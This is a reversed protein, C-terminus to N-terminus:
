EFRGEARREDPGDLVAWKAMGILRSVAPEGFQAALDDEDLNTTIVTPAGRDYRAWILAEFFSRVFPIMRAGRTGVDDLVLVEANSYRRVIDGVGADTLRPDRGRGIADFCVQVLQRWDAFLSEATGYEFGRGSLVWGMSVALGTKGRGTEGALALSRRGTEAVFAAHDAAFLRTLRMAESRAPTTAPWTDFTWDGLVGERPYGRALMREYDIGLWGPADERAWERAEALVWVDIETPSMAAFDPVIAAPHLM